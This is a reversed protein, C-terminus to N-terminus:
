EKRVAERIKGAIWKVDNKDMGPHLPLTIVRRSVDETRPLMGQKVGKEKQYLSFLHVSPYHVSTQIGFAKLSEMLRNRRLLTEGEPDPNVLIPFLHCSPSGEFRDFPISLAEIGRLEERYVETLKKRIRNGRDLKKLQVLGLASEIETTRYNYGLIDIDYASLHGKFKDWSLSGMGHSRLRRLTDARERTRVVIMGGEGTVLNKNAFFSFCGADGITGCMKGGYRAGPAHAADEVVHLHHRAALRLIPDMDCPYGGYHMVMIAKTKGTIRKEVERPSINLNEPGVIDAFVPKAGMYLVANATASFTLSPLIVEDGRKLGLCALALHLAATGSSVAIAYGGGLYDSFAGEFKETMPGTSLWRSRLVMLVAREEAKGFNIDSLPYKWRKM